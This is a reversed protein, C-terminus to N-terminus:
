LQFFFRLPFRAMSLRLLTRINRQPHNVSLRQLTFPDAGCMNVGPDLTVATEFGAEQTLDRVRQSWKGYPYCFHRVPVGFRDELSKKSASIEERAVNAGVRTLRCHSMTHAGIQHGASLWERVDADDMLSDPAEGFAAVDWHNVGGIAGAVLFVIARLGHQALIPLAHRMLTRSGDDFTLIVSDGANTRPVDLTRSKFGAERLQRMQWDFLGSSVYLSRMKASRPPRGLKHYCLIPTGEGFTERFDDLTVYPGRPAIGKASTSVAAFRDVLNARTWASRRWRTCRRAQVEFANERACLVVAFGGSKVGEGIPYNAM